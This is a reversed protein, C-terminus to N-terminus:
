AEGGTARAIAADMKRVADAQEATFRTQDVRFAENMAKCAELLEPAAERVPDAAPASERARLMADAYYWRWAFYRGTERARLWQDRAELASEHRDRFALVAPDVEHDDLWDGLGEWESHLERPLENRFDPISPLETPPEYKFWSPIDAPAKTAFYDRLSMGHTGYDEPRNADVTPFAPGGNKNQESM